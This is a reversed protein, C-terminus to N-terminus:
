ADESACIYSPPVCGDKKNGYIAGDLIFRGLYNEM